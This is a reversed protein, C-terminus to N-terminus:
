KFWGRKPEKAIENQTLVWATILMGTSPEILYRVDLKQGVVAHAFVLQNQQNFIRLGPALRYTKGDVTGEVQSAVKLDGRASQPPFNRPVSMEAGSRQSNVAPEVVPSNAHAPATAGLTLLTCLTAAALSSTAATPPKLHSFHPKFCRNMTYM